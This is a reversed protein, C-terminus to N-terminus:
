TKNRLNLHINLDLKSMQYSTLTWAWKKEYTYGVTQAGNKLLSDKGWEIVKIGKNFVLHDYIHPDIEFKGNQEM